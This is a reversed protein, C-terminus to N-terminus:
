YNFFRVFFVLLFEYKYIIEGNNWSTVSANNDCTSTSHIPFTENSDLKSLALGFLQFMRFHLVYSEKPM